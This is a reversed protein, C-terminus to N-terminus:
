LQKSSSTPTKVKACLIAAAREPHRRTSICQGLLSVAGWFFKPRRKLHHWEGRLSKPGLVGVVSYGFGRMEDPEWGSLHVQLDDSETHRQPLFGSPTFFVTKKRSIREMDKMLKLGEAKPLHEIVDLAVCADFENEHFFQDLNRIDGLVLRDHTKSRVAIEHSPPYGEIGALHQFEFLRLTSGPGCGVDLVSECGSLMDRLELRTLIQMPDLRMKFLRAALKAKTVM